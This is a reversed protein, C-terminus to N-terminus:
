FSSSIRTNDFQLSYSNEQVNECLLDRKARPGNLKENYKNVFALWVLLLQIASAIITLM